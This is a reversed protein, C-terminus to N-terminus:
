IEVVVNKNKEMAQRYSNILIKLIDIEFLDFLQMTITDFIVDSFM